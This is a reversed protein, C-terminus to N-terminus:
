LEALHRWLLGPQLLHYSKPQFSHTWTSKWCHFFTFNYERWRQADTVSLVIQALCRVTGGLTWVSVIIVCTLSESVDLVYTSRSIVRVRVLLRLQGTQKLEYIDSNADAASDIKRPERCSHTARRGECSVRPSLTVFSRAPPIVSSKHKCTLLHRSMYIIVYQIMQLSLQSNQYTNYPHMLIPSVHKWMM